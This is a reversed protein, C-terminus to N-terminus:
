LMSRKAVYERYLQARASISITECLEQEFMTPGSQAYLVDIM